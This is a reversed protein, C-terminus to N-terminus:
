RGVLLWAAMGVLLGLITDVAYHYRGIVSGLAIGIVVVLFAVGLLPEASTVVLATSLGGSAHASPFTNWGVSGHRLLALNLRRATLRHLGGPPTDEVSRPPRTQLWPLTGYCSFMALLVVTWFRDVSPPPPTTQVVVCGAVILPACSLYALELCELVIRPARTLFAQIPGYAFLRRDIREFRAELHSSPLNALLGSLRYGILVYLSPWLSRILETRPWATAALAAIGGITLTALITILLHRQRPLRIVWAAVALYAVFGCAILEAPGM